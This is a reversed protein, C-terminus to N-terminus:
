GNGLGKGVQSGDSDQQAWVLLVDAVEEQAISEQLTCHESLTDAAKEIRVEQLGVAFAADTLWIM